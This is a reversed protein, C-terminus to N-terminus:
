LMSSTDFSTFIAEFHTFIVRTFTVDCGHDRSSRVLESSPATIRDNKYNKDCFYGQIKRCSPRSFGQIACDGLHIFGTSTDGRSQQVHRDTTLKRPLSMMVIRSAAQSVSLVYLYSSTTRMIPSIVAVSRPCM